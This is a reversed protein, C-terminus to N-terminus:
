ERKRERLFSWEAGALGGIVGGVPVRGTVTTAVVLIAVWLLFLGAAV